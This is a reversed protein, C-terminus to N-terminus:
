PKKWEEIDYGHDKMWEHFVVRESCPNMPTEHFIFVIDVDDKLKRNKRYIRAFREFWKVFQDFDIKDLQKRYLKLFKCSDPSNTCSKGKCLDACTDDPHLNEARIGHIVSRRDFFIHNKGQHNHYWKPDSLATSVPVMNPSFFRIMYFYSTYFKM